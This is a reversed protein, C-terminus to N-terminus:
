RAGVCHAYRIHSGSRPPAANPGVALSAFMRAKDGAQCSATYMRRPTATGPDYHLTRVTWEYECATPLGDPLEELLTSRVEGAEGVPAGDGGDGAVAADNTAGRASAVKGGGCSSNGLAVLAILLAGVTSPFKILLVTRM